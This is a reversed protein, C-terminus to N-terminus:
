ACDFQWVNTRPIETECVPCLQSQELPLQALQATSERHAGPAAPHGQPVTQVSLPVQWQASERDGRSRKRVSQAALVQAVISLRINLEVASAM